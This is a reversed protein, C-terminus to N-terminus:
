LVHGAELMPLVTAFAILGVVVVMVLILLPELVATLRASAVAVQQDYEIALEDLLEELRGSQQGVSFVQLVVPGFARTDELAEAIERGEGVATEAEQLAARIVQNSTTARAIALAQVFEIGSRMLEAIVVALRAVAQKRILEGLLPVRLLLTDFRWRGWPTRLVAGVGVVAAATLLALLWWRSVLLDSLAKVVATITPVPRGAELLGELLRPVVFTMLFISVAAAMVLVIAPYILATTLKGRMQASRQKFSALRRLAADLTGANEGVRVMNVAYTDFYVPQAAMAEALSQGGAVSDRIHLMARTFGMSRRGRRQKLITDMAELLPVGVALLTALERIWALVQASGARSGLGPEPQGPQGLGPQGLPWMLGWGRGRRTTSSASLDEVTLGRDRLLDRAARPTDAVVVGRVPSADAELAKYTFVAM